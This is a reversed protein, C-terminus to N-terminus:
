SAQSRVPAPAALVGQIATAVRAAASIPIWHGGKDVIEIAAGPFSSAYRAPIYPDGLGWVVRVPVRAILERLSADIGDFYSSPVMKQFLRITSRKSKADLAFERTMRDVHEDSLEPSIRSFGARFIRGGFLGMQWMVAAAARRGLPDTRAWLRGVGFWKFHEFVVTNTIVLGRVRDLNRAAWPVGYIGGIDHVALVLKDKIGLTAVLEDLFADNASRSFDFSTPPEECAGLGPLDPAFCACGGDLSQMVSSWETATDPSGHLMLVPAGAGSRFLRTTFGAKALRIREENIM